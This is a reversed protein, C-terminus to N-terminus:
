FDRDSSRVFDLTKRKGLQCCVIIDVRIRHNIIDTTFVVPWLADYQSGVPINLNFCALVATFIDRDAPM